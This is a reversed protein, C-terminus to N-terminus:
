DSGFYMIALVFLSVMLLVVFNLNSLLFAEVGSLGHTQVAYLGWYRLREGAFMFWVVIFTIFWFIITIPSLAKKNM